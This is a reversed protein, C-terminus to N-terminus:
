MMTDPQCTLKCQSPFVYTLCLVDINAERKDYEIISGSIDLSTFQFFGLPQIINCMCCKCWFIGAGGLLSHGM